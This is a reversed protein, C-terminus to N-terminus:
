YTGGDINFGSLNSSSAGAGILDSGAYIKKNVALGGAMVVSAISLSSAETANTFDILGSASITTGSFSSSQITKNTLTETGALTALTGTTPLTVNTPGTSTLIVDSAGSTQFNGGLTVTKNGNNVGTGGYTPSVVSGQWTGSTITGLTTISSQGVYGSYIGVKGSELSITSGDVEVNIVGDNYSLADGAISSKLQLRDDSLEIGGSTAVQVNFTRGDIGFALGDGALYNGAGAFQIWTIGDVGVDFDGSDEVSAVWGTAAYFTGEQVFVYASPIETPQDCKACRTLVWPSSINGITSVFYRGNEFPNIQDKVLIGDFVNWSTVGDINLTATAPITLTAGVGNTGNNYTAGLDSSTAARVAPKVSLGQAIDDVYNKTAADQPDVPDALGSARSGNFAVNGSGNPNLSLDGNANTTSIENGNININDVTVETLGALTTSTAGLSITTSGVTVSSNELQANGVGATKITVEGGGSVAFDASAFSAVGVNSTSALEGKVTITSGSHEVDIGEGGLISLGHNSPTLAGSDTTITKVVTDKLEVAGATVNFDADAFSAIGKNSTTADEGTITIVNGGLPHTVDIGEGGLISIQNNVTELLGSDTTIGAVVSDVVNITTTGATDDYSTAILNGDVIQGGTVDQIFETLSTNVDTYLNSIVTKGTGNPTININGNTNTSSLTNGDLRLNDTDLQTFAGTSPTINGIPTDNIAAFEASEAQILGGVYLAGGIGVGGAVTLAGSSTSTSATSSAINVNSIKSEFQASNTDLQFALTGNTFARITDDSDGPNLEASLYTLGDVSKVGGLSSWNAGSYGEFASIDTNYRIAAQLSPGRQATTGKPIVLGNTGVIEVHGLGEPDILINGNTDTSSITNGNLTLNDVNLEDIKKNSDVIIASNATLTGKAHDLMDTFFKGGIVIHSAANGSTEAGIGIYLRDGGGVVSSDAASYALEGAGLTSPDGATTSRKIRIISAM